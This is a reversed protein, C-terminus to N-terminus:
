YSGPTMNTWVLMAGRGTHGSGSGTHEKSIAESESKKLIAVASSSSLNMQTVSWYNSKHQTATESNAKVSIGSCSRSM